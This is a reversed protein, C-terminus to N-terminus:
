TDHKEYMRQCKVYRVEGRRQYKEYGVEEVGELM